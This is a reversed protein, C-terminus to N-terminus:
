WPNPTGALWRLSPRRACADAIVPWMLDFADQRQRAQRVIRRVPEAVTFAEIYSTAVWGTGCRERIANATMEPGNTRGSSRHAPQRGILRHPTAALARADISRRVEIVLM